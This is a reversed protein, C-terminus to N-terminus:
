GDAADEIDYAVAIEDCNPFHPCNICVSWVKHPLEDKTITRFGLRHFFTDEYTLAFVRKIELQRAEEVCAKVIASGIGKQKADERVALSRVEALDAWTVNLAGCGLIGGSADDEFVFFDRIREYVGSLAVALMRGKSAYQNILTHIEPVDSVVAKRVM